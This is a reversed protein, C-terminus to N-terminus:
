ACMGFFLSLPADNPEIPDDPISIATGAATMDNGNGSSDVYWTAPDPTAGDAWAGWLTTGADIATVMNSDSYLTTLDFAVTSVRCSRTAAEPIGTGLGADPGMFLLGVAEFATTATAYLTYSTQSIHRVYLYWDDGDIIMACHYWQLTIGTECPIFGFTNIGEYLTMTSSNNWLVWYPNNVTSHMTGNTAVRM